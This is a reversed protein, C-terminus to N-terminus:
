GPFVRKYVDMMKKYIYKEHSNTCLYTTFWAQSCTFSRKKNIYGSHSFHLFWQLYIPFWQACYFAWDMVGWEFNENEIGLPIEAMMEEAGAKLFFIAWRFANM